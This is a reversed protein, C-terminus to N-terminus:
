NQVGQEKKNKLLSNAWKNMFTMKNHQHGRVVEQMQKVIGNRNYHMTLSLHVTPQSM